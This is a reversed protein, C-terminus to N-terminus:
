KPAGFPLGLVADLHTAWLALMLPASIMLIALGGATIAPAFIFAVMLQPMARSIFGLTVNYAVSAILFPAAMSFALAFARSAHSVGWATLEDTNPIQGIPFIEYTQAIALVAKIHLDLVLALALGSIILINGMAPMPDPTASAGMIQALATSQAAISGALQMALVLLRISLGFAVGILVERGLAGFMAVPNQPLPPPTETLLPWTLLAFALALGLRVRVPVSREGFGPLLAAVAAVRFFVMAFSMLTTEAFVALEAISSFM